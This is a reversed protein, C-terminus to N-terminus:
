TMPEDLIDDFNNSKIISLNKTLHRYKGAAYVWWVLAVFATFFSYGILYLDWEANVGHIFFIVLFPLFEIIGLFILQKIHEKLVGKYRWFVYQYLVWLDFFLLSGIMSVGYLSLGGNGFGVYAPGVHFPDFIINISNILLLMAIFIAFNYKQNVLTKNYIFFVQYLAWLKFTAIWCFLLGFAMPLGEGMYEVGICFPDFSGVIFTVIVELLVLVLLSKKM